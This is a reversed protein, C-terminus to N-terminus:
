ELIKELKNLKTKTGIIILRDGGNIPQDDPPNALLKGEKTRMALITIGHGRRAEEMTIGALSSDVEIDISELQMERGPRYAVRDIFDVVAPRLSLMAMRQAGISSPSVVRNAGARKLKVEVDPASARATIFLDPYQQRASLTIYTNDVDNGVGAVLGRATEIRAEKLKEDSTADGSLALFGDERARAVVSESSDIIIFPVGEEKFTRAIERGVRGYGCLIFHDKLKEIEAKMHRRWMTIGFEGELLYQIFLSLTYLGGGVGGVMLVISFIQGAKSLPHVEGYGVTTITMITMYVADVFSWREIFMYGIIGVSVIIVLTYIALKLKQSLGM